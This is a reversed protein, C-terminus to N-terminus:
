VDDDDEDDDDNDFYCILCLSASELGTNKVVQCVESLVTIIVRITIMKTMLFFTTDRDHIHIDGNDDDNDNDLYLLQCLGATEMGATESGLTGLVCVILTTKKATTTMTAMLLVSLSSQDRGQVSYNMLCLAATELDTSIM